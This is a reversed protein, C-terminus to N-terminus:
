ISIIRRTLFILHCGQASVRPIELEFEISRKEKIGERILGHCVQDDEATSPPPDLLRQFQEKNRSEWEISRRQEAHVRLREAKSERGFPLALPFDLFDNFIMDKKSASEILGEPHSL